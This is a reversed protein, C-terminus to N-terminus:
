RLGLRHFAGLTRDIDRDRVYPLSDAITSLSCDPRTHIVSKLVARAEKTRGASAYNVILHQQSSVLDPAQRVSRRAAKIAETSNEACGYVSARASLPQGAFVEPANLRDRDDLAALASERQGLYGLTLGLCTYAMSFYPNIALARRYEEVAEEPQRNQTLAWGMSLHAWPDEEDRLIANGAAKLALPMTSQRKKWGWLVQIGYLYALASHARVCDPDLQTARILLREAVAYNNPVRLKGLAFAATVCELADLRDFPKERQKKAEAALICPEIATAIEATVADQDVFCARLGQTFNQAWIHLGVSGDILRVILRARDGVRRLGCIILYRVGLRRVISQVDDDRVGIHDLAIVDFSRSRVLAVTLDDAIGRAIRALEGDGDEATSLVVALSLKGSPIVIPVNTEATTERVAGIFRFGNRRLTRILRQQTGDDGIERRAANIRSGLVSESVFRGRWIIKFIEDRRVARDRHTILLHLLDFVQPELSRVIAGRRLERREVDLVCDDFRFLM